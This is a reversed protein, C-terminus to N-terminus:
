DGMLLICAGKLEAELSRQLDITVECAFHPGVLSRQDQCFAALDISVNGHPDRLNAARDYSVDLRALPNFEVAGRSHNAVKIGRRQRHFRSRQKFPLTVELISRAVSIVASIVASIV